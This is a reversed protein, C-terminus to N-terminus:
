KYKEKMIFKEEERKHHFKIFLSNDKQKRNTPKINHQKTQLVSLTSLAKLTVSFLVFEM